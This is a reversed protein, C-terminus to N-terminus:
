FDYRMFERVRAILLGWHEANSYAPVSDTLGGETFCKAMRVDVATATFREILGENAGCTLEMIIQLSSTLLNKVITM